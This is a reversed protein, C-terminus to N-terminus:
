LRRASGNKLPYGGVRGQQITATLDEDVAGGDGCQFVFM